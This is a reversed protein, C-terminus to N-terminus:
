TREAEDRVVEVGMSQLLQLWIMHGMHMHKLTPAATASTQPAQRMCPAECSPSTTGYAAQLRM